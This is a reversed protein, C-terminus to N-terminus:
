QAAVYNGCARLSAGQGEDSVCTLEFFFSLAQLGAQDANAALVKLTGSWEGSASDVCESPIGTGESKTFSDPGTNLQYEGSQTGGRRISLRNIDVQGSPSCALEADIDISSAAFTSLNEDAM